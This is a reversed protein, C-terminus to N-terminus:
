KKKMSVFWVVIGIVVVGILIWLWTLDKEVDKPTEPPNATDEKEQEEAETETTIEENISLITIDAKSNNISNLTVLIDYIDDKGLSGSFARVREKGTKVLMQPIKKMGLDELEAIFKKKKARDMVQVKM